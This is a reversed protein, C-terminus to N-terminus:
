RRINPTWAFSHETEPRVSPKPHPWSIKRGRNTEEWRAIRVKWDEVAEEITDGRGVYGTCTLFGQEHEANVICEYQPETPCLNRYVVVTYSPRLAPYVMATGTLTSAVLSYWDSSGAVCLELLGGGKYNPGEGTKKAEIKNRLDAQGKMFREIRRRLTRWPLAMGYKQCPTTKEWLERAHEALDPCKQVLWARDQEVTMIYKKWQIKKIGSTPRGPHLLRSPPKAVVRFFM